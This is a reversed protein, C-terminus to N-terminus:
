GASRNTATWESLLIDFGQGKGILINSLTELINVDNGKLTIILKRM